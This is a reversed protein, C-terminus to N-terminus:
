RVTHPISAFQGAGTEHAVVTNIAMMVGMVTVLIISWVSAGLSVAALEAASVHGTMAVDAVGMGVTALQGVLMPWSLRWLAGMEARIPRAPPALAPSM